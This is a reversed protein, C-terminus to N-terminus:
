LFSSLSNDTLWPHQYLFVTTPFSSYNSIETPNPIDCPLVPRPAANIVLHMTLKALRIILSTQGM